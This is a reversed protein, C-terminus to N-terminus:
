LLGVYLLATDMTNLAFKTGREGRGGGGWNLSGVWNNETEPFNLSLEM